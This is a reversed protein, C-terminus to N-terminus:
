EMRIQQEYIKDRIDKITFINQPMNDIPYVPTEDPLHTVLAEVDLLWTIGKSSRYAVLSHEEEHQFLPKVGKKVIAFTTSM